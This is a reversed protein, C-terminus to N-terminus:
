PVDNNWGEVDAIQGLRETLRVFGNEIAADFDIIVLASKEMLAQVKEDAHAYFEAINKFDFVTHREAALRLFRAVEDPLHAEDIEALLARTKDYNFLASVPPCEGKPEYVPLVIKNTYTQDTVPGPATAPDSPAGNGDLGAFRLNAMEEDTFGILEMDFDLAKLEDLEVALMAEDWGANLALKNDALIYARKQTESLYALEICPVETRKLLEAALVRGHGAIIGNEGDILVPNTWGFEIISGAIQKVQEPSHTRANRAYPILSALPRMTVQIPPPPPVEVPEASPDAKARKKATAAM